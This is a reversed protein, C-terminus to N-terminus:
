LCFKLPTYRTELTNYVQGKLILYFNSSAENLNPLEIGEQRGIYIKGSSAKLLFVLVRLRFVNQSIM